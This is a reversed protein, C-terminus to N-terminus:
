FQGFFYIAVLGRALILYRGEYLSGRVEASICLKARNNWALKGRRISVLNALGIKKWITWLLDNAEIAPVSFSTPLGV